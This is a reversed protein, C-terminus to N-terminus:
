KYIAIFIQVAAVIIQVIMVAIMVRAMRTSEANFRNVAEEIKQSAAVIVGSTFESGM